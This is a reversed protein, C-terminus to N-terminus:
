WFSNLEVQFWVGEEGSKEPQGVFPFFGDETGSQTHTQAKGAVGARRFLSFGAAESSPTLVGCSQFVEGEANPRRRAKGM